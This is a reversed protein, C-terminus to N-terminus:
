NANKVVQKLFIIEDQTLKRGELIKGIIEVITIIDDITM